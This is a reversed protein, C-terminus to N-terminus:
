FAAEVNYPIIYLNYGCIDGLGHRCSRWAAFRDKFTYTIRDSLDSGYLAAGTFLVQAARKDKNDEYKIGSLTLADRINYWWKAINAVKITLVFIWWTDSGGPM